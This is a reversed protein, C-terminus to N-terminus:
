IHILSLGDVTPPRLKLVIDAEVAEARDVITAGAETFQADPFNAAVGADREIVVEFGAKRWRAVVNPSAAVRRELPRTEKVIGLKM